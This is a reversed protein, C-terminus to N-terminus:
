LKNDKAWERYTKYDINEKNINDLRQTPRYDKNPILIYTCRDNVHIPLEPRTDNVKFTKGDYERCKSCTHGDLIASYLLYEGKNDKFFQENAANQVRAIENRVLRKTCMKNVEFRSNIVKEIQNLNTKGQLFNRIEIKLRKALTNKNTWIRSSYNEGKVKHNLINDLDKKSIKELTFDMGFSLLYNNINYKGKAQDKLSRTLSENEEKFEEVFMDNIKKDIQATLQKQQILTFDMKDDKVQSKLMINAIDKLLGEANADQKKLSDMLTKDGNTYLEQALKLFNRIFFQQDKSLKDLGKVNEYNFQQM